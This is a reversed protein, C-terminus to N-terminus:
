NFERAIKEEVKEMIDNVSPQLDKLFIKNMSAENITNASFIIDLHLKRSRCCDLLSKNNLRYAERIQRKVRNRWVAKGAKKSVAVSFNIDGNVEKHNIRFYAKLKKDPSQIVNGSSFIKDIVKKSKIRRNKENERNNM